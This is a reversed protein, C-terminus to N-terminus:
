YLISKLHVCKLMQKIAGRLFPCKWCVQTSDTHQFWESHVRYQSLISTSIAQPIASPDPFGKIHGHSATQSLAGFGRGAQVPLEMLWTFARVCEPKWVRVYRWQLHVSVTRQEEKQIKPEKLYLRKSGVLSICLDHKVSLWESFIFDETNQQTRNGFSDLWWLISLDLCQSECKGTWILSM